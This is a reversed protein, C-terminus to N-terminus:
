DVPTGAPAGMQKEFDRLLIARKIEGWDDDNFTEALTELIESPHLDRAIALVCVCAILLRNTDEVDVSGLGTIFRSVSTSAAM